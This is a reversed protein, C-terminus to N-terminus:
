LRKEKHGKLRALQRQSETLRKELTNKVLQHLTIEALIQTLMHIERTLRGVRRFKRARQAGSQPRFKRPM